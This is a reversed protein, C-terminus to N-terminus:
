VFHRNMFKQLNFYTVEDNENVALLKKLTADPVIIKRNEPNQLEHEKIYKIIFQTVETRAVHVGDEKSMFVCLESSIASPKAFGSPKRNAKRQRKKEAAKRAVTLERKVVKELGRLQQQLSTIQSKFTTLTSLIGDFQEFVPDIADEEVDLTESQYNKTEAEM